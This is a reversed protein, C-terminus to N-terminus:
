KLISWLGAVVFVLGVIYKLYKRPIFEAIVNGFFVSIITCFALGVLSAFYVMVPNYRAAFGITAIQTKDAIEMLFIMLVISLFEKLM